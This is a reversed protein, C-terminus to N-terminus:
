TRWARATQWSSLITLVSITALSCLCVICWVMLVRAEIYTLYLAFGLGGITGLLMLLSLRRQWVMRSLVMLAAYGAVGIISVPIGALESYESRNVIDCNFTENINCFESPDKRYHDYVSISSLVVGVAAILFIAWGLKGTGPLVTTTGAAM